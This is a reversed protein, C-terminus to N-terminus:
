RFYISKLQLPWSNGRLASSPTHGTCQQTHGFGVSFVGFLFKTPALSLYYLLYAKIYTAHLQVSNLGQVGYIEGFGLGLSSAMFVIPPALLVLVLIVVVCM